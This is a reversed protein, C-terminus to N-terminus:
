LARKALAKLASDREAVTLAGEKQTAQLAERDLEEETKPPPGPDSWDPNLTFGEGPTHLYKHQAFDDLPASEVLRAIGGRRSGDPFIVTTGDLVVPKRTQRAVRNDEEVMYTPM